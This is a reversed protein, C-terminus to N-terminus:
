KSEVYIAMGEGSMRYFFGWAGVGLGYPSHSSQDEYSVGAGVPRSTQDGVGYLLVGNAGLKAAQAKLREIVKDSQGNATITFSGRSSATLNAIQEYQSAPPQLYIRVQDPSIAPRAQGVLEAQSAACGGLAAMMLAAACLAVPPNPAHSM